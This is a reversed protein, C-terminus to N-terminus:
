RCGLGDCLKGAANVTFNCAQQDTTRYSGVTLITLFRNGGNEFYAVLKGSKTRMIVEDFGAGDVVSGVACDLYDIVSDQAQLATVSSQLNTTQTQLSLLQGLTLTLQANLAVLAAQQAAHDASEQAVLAAIQAAQSNATTQLGAMTTVNANTTVELQSVRSNLNNIQAQLDDDKDTGFITRCGMEMDGGCDKAMQKPIGCATLLGTLTMLVLLKKM